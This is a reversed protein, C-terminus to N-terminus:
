CEKALLLKEESEVKTKEDKRRKEERIPSAKCNWLNLRNDGYYSIHHGAPLCPALSPVTLEVDYGTPLLLLSHTVGPMAQAYFVCFRGGCHCVEELM